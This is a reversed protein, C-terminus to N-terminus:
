EIEIVVSKILRFTEPNSIQLTYNNGNKEVKYSSANQGSLVSYRKKASFTITNTQLLNIMTYHDLNSKKSIVSVKGMGLIGGTRDIIGKEQLEKRTGIAYYMTNIDKDMQEIQGQKESIQGERKKIEEASLKRETDLTQSIIGLESQLNAVIKEKEAVSARLKSLIDQLGAVQRNSQSLDKELRAIKAKGEELQTRMTSLTNVIRSKRDEPSAGPTEGAVSLQGMLDEDISDLTSQIEGITKTANEFSAAIEDKEKALAKQKSNAGSWMVIFVIAVVALVLTVLTM